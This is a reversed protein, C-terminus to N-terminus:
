SGKPSEGAHGIGLQRRSWKISSGEGEAKFLHIGENSATLIEDRGDSDWDIVCVGHVVTLTQDVVEVPWRDHAPDKPIRHCLLRVPEGVSRPMKAGRGVIPVTILEKRKDGDIDAWRIRHATPEAHIRVPMWKQDQGAPRRLWSVTGGEDSKGLNFNSAVTVDPRGDGDIDNIALDINSRMQTGSIPRRTWAGDKGPSEFWDVTGPSGGLAVIDPRRDGNMDAVAVQYGDPFSDCVVVTRFRPLPRSKEEALGVATWTGMAVIAVMTRPIM